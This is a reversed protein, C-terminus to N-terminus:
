AMALPEPSAITGYRIELAVGPRDTGTFTVTTSPARLPAQLVLKVGCRYGGPRAPPASGRIGAFQSIKGSLVRPARLHARGPRKSDGAANVARVAVPYTTGEVLGTLTTTYPGTGTTTVPAWQTGGDTSARYGTIVDGGDLAPATFTLHATTDGPTAATRDPAGSPIV